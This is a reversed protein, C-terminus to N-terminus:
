SYLCWVLTFVAVLLGTSGKLYKQQQPTVEMGKANQRYARIFPPWHRFINNKRPLSNTDPVTREM